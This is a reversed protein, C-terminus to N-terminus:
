NRPRRTKVLQELGDVRTTLQDVGQNATRADAAAAQAASAAADAHQLADQAKADVATVRTNVTEVQERVYAKTACASLSLGGLAVIAVLKIKASRDLARKM